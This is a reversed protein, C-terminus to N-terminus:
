FYEPFHHRVEDLNVIIEEKPKPNQKRTRFEIQQPPVGLFDFLGGDFIKQPDDSLSEYDVIYANPFLRIYKNYTRETSKIFSRFQDINITIDFDSYTGYDEPKDIPSIWKNNKRALNLSLFQDLKNKRYLHIIRVDRHLKGLFEETIDCKYVHSDLFKCGSISYNEKKSGIWRRTNLYDQIIGLAKEEPKIIKNTSDPMDLEMRISANEISDLLEILMNSGSRGTAVVFFLRDVERKNIVNIIKEAM